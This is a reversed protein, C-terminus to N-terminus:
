RKSLRFVTMPWQVRPTGDNFLGVRDMQAAPLWLTGDRDLFPADVWHLSACGALVAALMLGYLPARAVKVSTVGFEVLTGFSM